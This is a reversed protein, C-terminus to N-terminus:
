SDPTGDERLNRPPAPATGNPVAGSCGIRQTSVVVDDYFVGATPHDGHFFLNLWLISLKLNSTTRLWLDNWPGIETGDIWFDLVGNAGSATSTPTGGDLMMEVCYWRGSQLTPPATRERHQAKTCYASGEDLMCPISDGWCSGNPDACDQYMGRYYMYANLKQLNMNPELWASFWDAGTPRYNSRGLLGRDGAHLGGGHNEERFDYGPEWQIYWRAYLRDYSQPLVKILDATGRGPPVRLRMVTNGARNQPGPNAMLLNTADPNGDYDDWLNKNGEEFGTCFVWAAPRSGCEDSGALLPAASLLFAAGFLAPARRFYNKIM